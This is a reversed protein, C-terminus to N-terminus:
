LSKKILEIQNFKYNLYNVIEDTKKGLMNWKSGVKSKFLYDLDPVAHKYGIGNQIANM